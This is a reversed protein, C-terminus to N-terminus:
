RPRIAGALRQWEAISLTQARRMPDIGAAELAATAGGPEFWLAQALANHLQKRPQSFGAGVVKFFWDRETAAVLPERYVDIRVVASAVEPPPLFATPPVVAVLRPTGYVQVSIGLLSLHGPQAVLRDAVEKQVMVVLREPRRSAELFHRLVPSTIYYPLNAVVLYRGGALEAPDVQLIDAPVIEVNGRGALTEGLIAIMRQDLEVAIVRGARTALAQTLLGLGPGVEIVTDTSRLDAATLIRDLVNPDVLFHQGLRKKASVGYRRLLDRAVDRPHPM